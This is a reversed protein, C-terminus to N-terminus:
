NEIIHKAPAPDGDNPELTIVVKSYDNKDGEIEYKLLWIGKEEDHIMVGTSFFDLPPGPNVMWGEYFDDNELVPLQEAIVKHYTVGDKFVIWAEASATGGIVDSLGFSLEGKIPDIKEIYTRDEHRCQRPYSEMAPNGAALCEKFNTVQGSYIDESKSDSNNNIKNATLDQLPAKSCGVLLFALLIIFVSKRM